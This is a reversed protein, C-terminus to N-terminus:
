AYAGYARIAALMAKYNVLPIYSAISNGSGIAVGGGPGVREILTRTAATIQEPTGRTLLDVDIGGLLALRDGWRQKMVGMDVSTPENPHLGQVGCALLDPIVDTLVGDSHFLFLKDYRRCIDGMRRLWPFLYTRLFAPSVLLGATYAMDDGYWICGVWERQALSEVMDVCLRGAKEAIAALLAPNEFMATSLAEFGMSRCIFQFVPGCNVILKTGEPLHERILDVDKYYVDQPGIWPYAEFSQEDHIRATDSTGVSAEPGHMALQGEAIRVQWSDSLPQGRVQLLVFDYGAQEWFSAYAPLDIPRGLFAEIVEMDIGVEAPPIRDPLHTRTVAARLRDFDPRPPAM